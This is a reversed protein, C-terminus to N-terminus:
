EEVVRHAVVEDGYVPETDLNLELQAGCDNRADVHPVDRPGSKLSHVTGCVMEEGEHLFTIADGVALTGSEVRLGVTQMKHSFSFSKLLKARGTEVERAVKPRRAAIAQPLWDTLDYIISFSAIEVGHREALERAPADVGVNFGVVVTRKDAIAAKVDGESVAGIGEHVVRVVTREDEFKAFEHRIADLSGVVDGKVIIPLVFREDAEDNGVVCPAPVIVSERALAVASKKDVVTTFVAGVPPIDSFGVVMLPSSFTAQKVTKGLFNEVIRLPAYAGGAVIYEGAKLSGDRIVVVASVGRRPDCHSEIVLGEAPKNPDSTLEELDAALLVLDLLASVGEGTKSSIPVYSIDGGMGELYIGHELLSAKTREVDANNKDIKTIAVLYPIGAEEIAKLAEMTQPKVGDDAAVVLIALDAAQSGRSRLHQFAEHGPTDLFTITRSEGSATTHKAEYASIHQTIGGAESETVKTSRIFDLLTSKGHDIHGMVTVIPPRPIRNDESTSM